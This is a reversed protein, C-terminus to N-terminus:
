DSCNTMRGRSGLPILENRPVGARAGSGSSRAAPVRHQPARQSGDSGFGQVVPRSRPAQPLSTGQGLPRAPQSFCASLAEPYSFPVFLILLIPLLRLQAQLSSASAQCALLPKKPVAACAAPVASGCSSSGAGSGRGRATHASRPQSPEM